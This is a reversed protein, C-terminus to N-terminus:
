VETRIDAIRVNKNTVETWAFAPYHRLILGHGSGQFDM